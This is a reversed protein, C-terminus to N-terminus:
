QLYELNLGVHKLGKLITVLSITIAAFFIYVPVYRKARELPNQQTLILRQVSRYILFAILGATLPSAVWSMVITGVKGWRVAEIGIGVAAFGM